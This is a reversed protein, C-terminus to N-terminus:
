RRLRMAAQYRVQRVGRMVRRACWGATWRAARPVLRLRRVASGALRRASRVPRKIGHKIGERVLSSARSRAPLATRRISGRVGTTREAAALVMALPWLAVRGAFTAFGETAPVRATAGAREIADALLPTGARDLGHPRVFSRVFARTQREIADPQRLAQSLQ